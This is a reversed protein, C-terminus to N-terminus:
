ILSTASVFRPFKHAISNCNPKIESRIPYFYPVLKKKLWDPFRPLVFGTVRRCDLSFWEICLFHVLSFESCVTCTELVLRPFVCTVTDRSFQTQIRMQNVSPAFKKSSELAMFRLSAFGFCNMVASFFLSVCSPFRSCERFLHM